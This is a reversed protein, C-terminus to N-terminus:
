FGLGQVKVGIGQVRFGLGQVRLVPDAVLSQLVLAKKLRRSRGPSSM